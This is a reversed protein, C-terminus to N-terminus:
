SSRGLDLLFRLLAVVFTAVQWPVPRRPPREVHKAM